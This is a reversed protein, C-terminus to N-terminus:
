GTRASPAALARVVDVLRSLGKELERARVREDAGHMADLEHGELRVPVLGFCPTGAARLFSCDTTGRTLIPLVVLGPLEAKLRATLAAVLPHEPSSSTPTVSGLVTLDVRPDDVIALLRDRFAEPTTGPLLRCDLTASATAPIVNRKLGSSLMTLACTDRTLARTQATAELVQLAQMAICRAFM